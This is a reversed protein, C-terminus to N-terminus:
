VPEFPDEPTKICFARYLKQLSKLADRANM